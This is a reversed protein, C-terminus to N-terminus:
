QGAASIIVSVRVLDRGERLTLFKATSSPSQSLLTPILRGSGDWGMKKAESSNNRKSIESKNNDHEDTTDKYDMNNEGSQSM